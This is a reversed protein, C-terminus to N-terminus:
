SQNLFALEDIITQKRALKKTQDEDLSEGKAHRAALDDIQRLLKNRKKINKQKEEPTLNSLESLDLAEAAKSSNEKTESTSNMKVANLSAVVSSIDEVIEDEPAIKTERMQRAKAAKRKANKKASKSQESVPAGSPNSPDYTTFTSESQPNPNRLQTTGVVYQTRQRHAREASCVFKGIDEPPVYGEKVHRAKRWTGDARQTAPIFASGSITDRVIGSAKAQNM